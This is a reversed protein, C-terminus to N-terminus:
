YFCKPIIGRPGTHVKKLAVPTVTVARDRDRYVTSTTQAEGVTGARTLSM